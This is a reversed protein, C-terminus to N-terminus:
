HARIRMRRRRRRRRRRRSSRTHVSRVAGQRMARLRIHQLDALAGRSQILMARVEDQPSAGFRRQQKRSIERRQLLRKRAEYREEGVFLHYSESSVQGQGEAGRGRQGEAGAGAKGLRIIRSM